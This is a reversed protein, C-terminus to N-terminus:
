WYMWHLESITVRRQVFSQQCSQFIAFTSYVFFLRVIAGYMWGNTCLLVVVLVLSTKRVFTYLLMGVIVVPYTLLKSLPGLPYKQSYQWVHFAIIIIWLSLMSLTAFVVKIASAFYCIVLFAVLLLIKQLLAM